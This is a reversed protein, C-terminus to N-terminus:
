EKAGGSAPPKDAEILEWIKKLTEQTIAVERTWDAPLAANQARGAAPPAVIILPRSGDGQAKTAAALAEKIGELGDYFAALKAVVRSVPDEEGTGGLVQNKRFTKKIEDWRAADGPPLVGTLAHLKLLNAEAGSTLTQAENRYYTALLEELEADNMVPALKEALRNMNRYSGQLKFPPETRYADAQAASRIYEENVRLVVDRVRVLKRMVNLFEQQEESSWAGEFDLGERPGSEALELFALVDKPHRTLIRALTPNSGAANEVYSARFAAAHAGVVDGLNYTDARNALMNPIRFKEGSETYPNGAMVVVFKKGRLDFTRPQGRYVGEIRRSGDCLPIFKQLFEAHLHQIDDLCVM